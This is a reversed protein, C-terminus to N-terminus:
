FRENEANHQALATYWVEHGREEQGQWLTPSTLEKVSSADLPTPHASGHHHYQSCRPCGAMASATPHPQAGCQSVSGLHGWDRAGAASRRAHEYRTALAAQKRYELASADGGLVAGTDTGSQERSDSGRGDVVRWATA